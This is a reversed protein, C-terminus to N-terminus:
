FPRIIDFGPRQSVDVLMGEVICIIQIRDVLEFIIQLKNKINRALFGFVVSNGFSTGAYNMCADAIPTRLLIPEQGVVTPSPWACPSRSKVPRPNFISLTPDILKM